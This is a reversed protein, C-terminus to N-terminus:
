CVPVMVTELQSPGTSGSCSSGEVSESSLNVKKNRCVCMQTSSGPEFMIWKILGVTIICHGALTETLTTPQAAGWSFGTVVPLDFAVGTYTHGEHFTRLLFCRRCGWTLMRCLNPLSGGSLGSPDQPFLDQFFHPELLVRQSCHPFWPGGGSAKSFKM